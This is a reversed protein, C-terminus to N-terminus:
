LAYLWPQEALLGGGWGSTPEAFLRDLLALAPPDGQFTGGVSAVPSAADHPALAAAGFAQDAAAGSRLRSPGPVPTPVARQWGLVAIGADTPLVDPAPPLAPTPAAWPDVATAAVRGNGPPQGGPRPAGGWANDNLLISVDNSGYNAVALDSSGDGNLDGVAVSEPGGGADYTMAPQFSGDGNGLLVGIGNGGTVALDPVGDGNFDGVAVSSLLPVRYFYRPEQFYGYGTGLLVCVSHDAGNAVALDLKGDGNFDAVVVSFPLEGVSYDQVHYFSGDGNGLFVSVSHDGNTVALDPIGDGSFDGVAVSSAYNGAAFSRAAQFTGDGNGLLVSVTGPFFNAVALDLKGDGNFDAVAVRSPSDGADFNGALQFSGDGNGLLVGISNDDTVALDPVRDGNFDGVAVGAGVVPLNWAPQFSGDGNGLLVSRATAVDPIGDGNFDGVAVSDSTGGADFHMPALFGPLVLQELPELRLPRFWRRERRVSPRSPM